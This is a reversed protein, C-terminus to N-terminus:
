CARSHLSKAPPYRCALLVLGLYQGGDEVTLAEVDWGEARWARARALAHVSDAPTVREIRSEVAGPELGAFPTPYSHAPMTPM